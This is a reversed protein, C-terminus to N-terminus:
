LFLLILALAQVAMNATLTFTKHKIIQYLELGVSGILAIAAFSFLVRPWTFAMAMFATLQGLLAFLISGLALSVPLNGLSLLPLLESLSKANAVRERALRAEFQEDTSTLYTIGDILALIGPVMTWSFLLYLLGLKNLGLYFKHIGWGGFLIAFVGALTKQNQKAAEKKTALAEQFVQKSEAETPKHKPEPKPPLQKIPKAPPLTVEEWLALEEVTEVSVETQVAGSTKHQFGTSTTERSVEEEGLTAVLTGNEIKKSYM